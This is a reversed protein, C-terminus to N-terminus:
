PRGDWLRVIPDASASALFHANPSIAVAYLNRPHTLTLLEQGRIADWVKVAKDFYGASILRRGDSSFALSNVRGAHASLHTHEKGTRADWIFVEGDAGGSALWKGDHSFALCYVWGDHAKLTLRNEGTVPNWIQVVKDEGCSALLSGDPNYAVAFARGAHAAIVLPKADDSSPWVRVSGDLSTSALKGTTSFALSTVTGKHGKLLRPS